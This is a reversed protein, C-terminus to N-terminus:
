QARQAPSCILSQGRQNRGLHSEQAACKAAPSTQFRLNAFSRIDLSQSVVGHGLNVVLLNYKRDRQQYYDTALDHRWM